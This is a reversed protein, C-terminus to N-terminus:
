YIKMKRCIKLRLVKSNKQVLCWLNKRPVLSVALLFIGIEHFKDAVNESHEFQESIMARKGDSSEKKTEVKRRCSRYSGHNTAVNLSM